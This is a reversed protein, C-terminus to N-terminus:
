GALRVSSYTDMVELVMAWPLPKGATFNQQRLPTQVSTKLPHGLNRLLM